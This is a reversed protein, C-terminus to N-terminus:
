PNSATSIPPSRISTIIKSRLCIAIYSAVSNHLFNSAWNALIILKISSACGKRFTNRHHKNRTLFSMRIPHLKLLVIENKLPNRRFLLSDSSRLRDGLTLSCIYYRLWYLLLRDIYFMLLRDRTLAALKNDGCAPIRAVSALARFRILPPSAKPLSGQAVRSLYNIQIDRTSRDARSLSNPM